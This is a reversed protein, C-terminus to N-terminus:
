WEYRVRVFGSHARYNEKWDFDYSLSIGLGSKGYTTLSLGLNYDMRAPSAGVTEYSPGFQVFQSHSTQNDGIFDYSVNAHIEPSVMAREMQHDYSFKVGLGLLLADLDDYNVFQNATSTGKERYGDFEVRSYTLSATPTIHFEEEGMVYGVEGRAGYQWGHYDAITTKNFAGVITHRTTDYDNYAASAMWNVFWPGSNNWSGYLSARYSNIDTDGSNLDHNVDVSAWSLGLGVLVRETIMMDVGAAVGWTEATYGAINDRKDQDVHNGFLKVWTGYGAESMSGAAYGTHYNNIGARLESIRQSFLDFTNDQLDLVTSAIAGDALPAITALAEKQQETNLDNDLQSVLAALEGATNAATANGLVGTVGSINGDLGAGPNANRTVVLNLLKNSPADLSFSIFLNSTVGALVPQVIGGTVSTVLAKTVTVGPTYDALDANVINVISGVDINANNNVDFKGPTATNALDFTLQTGEPANLDQTITVTKDSAVQATATNSLALNKTIAYNANFIVESSDSPSVDGAVAGGANLSVVSTDNLILDGAFDAQANFVSQFADGFTADGGSQNFKGTFTASGADIATTSNTIETAGGFIVSGGNQFNLTKAKIDGTTTVTGDVSTHTFELTGSGTLGGTFNLTAGSSVNADKTATAGIFTSTGVNTFNLTVASTTSSTTVVKGAGGNFNITNIPNTVGISGDVISAGQFNVISAFVGAADISKTGDATVHYGDIVTFTAPQDFNYYDMGQALTNTDAPGAGIDLNAAQVVNTYSISAILVSSTLLASVLNLRSKPTDFLM